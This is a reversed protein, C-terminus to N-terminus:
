SLASLFMFRSFKQRLLASSYPLYNALHSARFHHIGPSNMGFAYIFHESWENSPLMETLESFILASHFTIIEPFKSMGNFRWYATQQLRHHTYVTFCRDCCSHERKKENRKRAICLNFIAAHFVFSFWQFHLCLYYDEFNKKRSWIKKKLFVLGIQFSSKRKVFKWSFIARSSYIAVM